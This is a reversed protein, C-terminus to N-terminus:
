NKNQKRQFNQYNEKGQKSYPQFRRNRHNGGRRPRGGGRPQYHPHGRRFSQNQNERDRPPYAALFKLNELHSKMKSEFVKGLLLPAAEEFIDEEDALPHVRKNLGMIVKRRRERSMHASANGLLAIAAKAAEAAQETSLTVKNAEEVVHVLPAVADM